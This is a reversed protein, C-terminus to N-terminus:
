RKNDPDVRIKRVNLVLVQYLCICNLFEDLLDAIVHRFSQRFIRVDIAIHRDRDPRQPMKPGRKRIWTDPRM